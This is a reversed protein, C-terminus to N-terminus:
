SSRPRSRSRSIGAAGAAAALLAAAATEDMTALTLASAGCWALPLPWLWWPSPRAAALLGLTALATADPALGFVQAQAMPRGMALGALPWGVFALVLLLWALPGPRAPGPRAPVLLLAQLGFAAAFWPAATMVAAYHRWHFAWAVFAWVAALAWWAARHRQTTALAVLAVGALPLLWPLPWWEANVLEFLRHYTRPSFMLFDSPRYTWWESM